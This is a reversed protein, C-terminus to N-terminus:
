QADPTMLQLIEAYKGLVTQLKKLGALDVDASIHLRGGAMIITPEQPGPDWKQADKPKPVDQLVAEELPIASMSGEVQLYGSEADIAKVKRPSPFRPTDAVVWQIWDGVKLDAVPSSRPSYGTSMQEGTTRDVPRVMASSDTQFFPINSKYVEYIQGAAADSFGMDNKLISRGIPAAPPETGWQTWLTQMVKPGRVMEATMQRRVEPREERLYRIALDSLKIRRAQGSGSEALLLYYGLAALTQDGGSSKPAYNWIERVQDISILNQGAAERIAEARQLARALSIFPFRPSSQRTPSLDDDAMHAEM